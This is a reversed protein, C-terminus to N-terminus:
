DKRVRELKTIRGLALWDVVYINGAADFCASHPSIFHGDAWQDRPIGNRARKRPDPNDGLHVVLKNDKDLITVRGALDAIVLDKGNSQINCPRRLIGEVVGLLKGELDFKQLRHNERDALLLCPEKGRNDIFIGHPTRMKGPAAGGGGWTRIYKRNRDFQHVLSKGYGDSVYIDGDPGVAVSTPRYQGPDTYLGSEKPWGLTWLVKGELTTKLVEHRGTHALYLFEQDGEKSLTMGHLGGALDSGWSNVMKGEPSYVVVARSTDTNVYIRGKSDSLVCGHTNGLKGEKPIEAWDAVWRYTYAGSGMTPLAADDQGGAMAPLCVSVITFVFIGACRLVSYHM